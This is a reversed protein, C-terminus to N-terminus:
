ILHSKQENYTFLPRWSMEHEIYFQRIWGSTRGVYMYLGLDFPFRASIGSEFVRQMYPYGNHM